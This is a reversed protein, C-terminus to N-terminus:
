NPSPDDPRENGQVLVVKITLKGEPSGEDRDLLEKLHKYEGQICAKVYADAALDAYRRGAHPGEKVKERLKKKIRTLLSVSGKPRGTPNRCEGPKAPILNDWGKNRRLKGNAEEV